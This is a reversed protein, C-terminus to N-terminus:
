EGKNIHEWKMQRYHWYCVSEIKCEMCEDSYKSYYKKACHIVNDNVFQQRNEVFEKDFLLLSKCENKM